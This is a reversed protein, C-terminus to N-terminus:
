CELGLLSLSELIRVPDVTIGKSHERGARDKWTLTLLVDDRRPHKSITIVSKGYTREDNTAIEHTQWGQDM